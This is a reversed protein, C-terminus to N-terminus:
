LESNVCVHLYRKNNAQKARNATPCSPKVAKAHEQHQATHSCCVTYLMSYRGVQQGHSASQTGRNAQEWRTGTGGAARGVHIGQVAVGPADAATSCAACRYSHLCCASTTTGAAARRTGPTMIPICACWHTGQRRAQLSSQWAAGEPGALSCCHHGLSALAVVVLPNIPVALPAPANHTLSWHQHLLALVSGGSQQKACACGVWGLVVQGVDGGQQRNCGASTLMDGSHVGRRARLKVGTHKGGVVM